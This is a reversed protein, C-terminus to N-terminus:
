HVQATKQHQALITYMQDKIALKKKKLTAEEVLEDDNPHQLANLETLRAEYRSHARALERFEPDTSILQEKLTETSATDVQSLRRESADTAHKMASQVPSPSKKPDHAADFQKENSSAGNVRFCFTLDNWAASALKKDVYERKV